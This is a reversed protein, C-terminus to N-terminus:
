FVRVFIPNEDEEMVGETNIEAQGQPIKCQGHRVASSWGLEEVEDLLKGFWDVFYDHNSMAHYDKVIKGSKKGGVFIDLGLLHAVDSGDDLIGAICCYRRGNHKPKTMPDDTHYQSDAHSSYHHHVFSEDLYVLPRRPSMTVTPVMMSVYADRADEHAKSM